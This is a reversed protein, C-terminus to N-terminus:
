AGRSNQNLAKPRSLTPQPVVLPLRTHMSSTAETLAGAAPRKQKKKKKAPKKNKKKKEISSQGQPARALQRPRGTCTCYTHIHISQKQIDHQGRPAQVGAAGRPVGGRKGDMWARGCLASFSNAAKSPHSGGAVEGGEEGHPTGRAM